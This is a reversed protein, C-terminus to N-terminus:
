NHIYGDTEIAFFLGGLEIWYYDCLSDWQLETVVQQEYKKLTRHSRIAALVAPPIEKPKTMNKREFLKDLNYKQIFLQAKIASQSFRNFTM